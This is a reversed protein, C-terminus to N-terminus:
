NVAASMVNPGSPTTSGGMPEDTVGVLTLTGMDTPMSVLSTADGADDVWFTGGSVMAGDSDEFWLQYCRDYGQVPLNWAILGAESRNDAMILNAGAQPTNAAGALRVVKADPDDRLEAIIQETTSTAPPADDTFRQVMFTTAVLVLVAALFAAAAIRIRPANWWVVRQQEAVERRMQARALLLSRTGPSPVAPPLGYPMLRLVEDYERLLARAEPSDNLHREIDDFEAGELTGLAYAALAQQVANHEDLTDPASAAASSTSPAGPIHPMTM